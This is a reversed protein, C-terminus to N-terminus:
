KPGVRVAMRELLGRILEEEQRLTARFAAHDTHHIESILDHLRHELLGGVLEIERPEMRIDM